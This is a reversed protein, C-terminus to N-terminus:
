GLAEMSPTIDKTENFLHAWEKKAEDAVAQNRAELADQKSAFGGTGVRPTEKQLYSSKFGIWGSEACLGITEAMTLGAKEAEREMAQLISDTLVKGKRATLWDRVHQKDANYKRAVWGAQNKSPLGDADQKEPNTTKTTDFLECTNQAANAACIIDTTNETTTKTTIETNSQRKGGASIPPNTCSQKASEAMSHQRKQASKNALNNLASLLIKDNVRYWIKCPIGQKKEELFGLEVLKHRATEQERRTMGTEEEWDAQTKYFWGDNAGTRKSWYVCQSLFLAGTIGVGLSVFDRNFAIPSDPIFDIM